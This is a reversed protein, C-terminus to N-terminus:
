NWTLDVGFFDKGEGIQIFSLTDTEINVHLSNWCKASYPKLIPVLCFISFNLKGATVLDVM